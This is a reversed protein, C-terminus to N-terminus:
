CSLRRVKTLTLAAGSRTVDDKAARVADEFSSAERAFELQVRGNIRCLLADSCGAEFLKTEMEETIDEESFILAFEHTQQM